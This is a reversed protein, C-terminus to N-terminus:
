EALNEANTQTPSESESSSAGSSEANSDYIADGTSSYKEQISSVSPTPSQKSLNDMGHHQQRKLRLLNLKTTITM